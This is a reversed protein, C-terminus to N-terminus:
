ARGEGWELPRVCGRSTVTFPRVPRMVAGVEDPNLTPRLTPLRCSMLTLNEYSRCAHTRSRCCARILSLTYEDCRKAAVPLTHAPQLYQSAGRHGSHAVLEPETGDYPQHHYGFCSHLSAHLLLRLLVLAHKRLAEVSAAMRRGGGFLM